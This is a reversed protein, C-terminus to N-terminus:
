IGKKRNERNKKVEEEATHIQKKLKNYDYTSDVSVTLYRLVDESIKFHREIEEVVGSSGNFYIVFFRGAKEHRIAYALDRVGWDDRLNLKGGFKAIVSDIKQHIAGSTSDSLGGKLVYVTEYTHNSTRSM